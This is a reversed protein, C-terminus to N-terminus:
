HFRMARHYADLINEDVPHGHYIKRQIDALENPSFTTLPLNNHSWRPVLPYIVLLMQESIYRYEFDLKTTLTEPDIMIDRAIWTYIDRSLRVSDIQSLGYKILRKEIEREGALVSGHFLHDFALNLIVSMSSYWASPGLHEVLAERVLEFTNRIDFLAPRDLTNLDM